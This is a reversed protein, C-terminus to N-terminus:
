IEMLEVGDFKMEIWHTLHVDDKEINEHKDSTKSYLRRGHQLARTPDYFKWGASVFYPFQDREESGITMEFAKCPDIEETDRLFALCGQRELRPNFDILRFECDEENVMWWAAGFGNYKLMDVLQIMKQELQLNRVTEYLLANGKWYKTVESVYGSLLKGREAYFRFGWQKARHVPKQLFLHVNISMDSLQIGEARGFFSPLEMDLKLALDEKSVGSLLRVGESAHSFERKLFLMTGNGIFDMLKGKELLDPYVFKIGDNSSIVYEEPSFKEHGKFLKGLYPPPYVPPWVACNRKYLEIVHEDQEEFANSCIRALALVASSDGPFFYTPKFYDIADQVFAAFLDGHFQLAWSIFFRSVRASAFETGRRIMAYVKDLKTGSGKLMPASIMENGWAFTAVLLVSTESAKRMQSATDHYIGAMSTFSVWYFEDFSIEKREFRAFIEFVIHNIRFYRKLINWNFSCEKEECKAFARAVLLALYVPGHDFEERYKEAVHKRSSLLKEAGELLARVGCLEWQRKWIVTQAIVVSCNFLFHGDNWNTKGLCEALGPCRDGIMQDLLHINNTLQSSQFKGSGKDVFIREECESVSECHQIFLLVLLFLGGKMRFKLNRNGM